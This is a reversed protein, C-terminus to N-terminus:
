GRGTPAIIPNNISVGINVKLSLGSAIQPMRVLVKRPSEDHDGCRLHPPSGSTVDGPMAAREGPVWLLLTTPSASATCFYSRCSSSLFVDAVTYDWRQGVTFDDSLM